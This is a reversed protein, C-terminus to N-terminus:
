MRHVGCRTFDAEYLSREKCQVKALECRNFYYRKDSACVIDYDSNCSVYRLQQCFVNQLVTHVSTTSKKKPEETITTMPLNEHTTQDSAPKETATFTTPVGTCEGEYALNLAVPHQYPHIVERCRAKAFECYTNHTQGHTDCLHEDSVVHHYACDLDIIAPCLHDSLTSPFRIETNLKWVSKKLTLHHM